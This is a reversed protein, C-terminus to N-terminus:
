APHGFCSSFLPMGFHLPPVRSPWLVRRLMGFHVPPVQGALSGAAANPRTLGRMRGTPWPIV